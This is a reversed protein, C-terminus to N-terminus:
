KLNEAWEEEKFGILVLDDKILLPRKVLMGNSSLIDLLEDESATKVKDKLNMERYLKGSTNFFKNLKVGSKEYWAKLEEKTPNEEVIMRDTFDINYSAISFDRGAEDIFEANEINELKDM